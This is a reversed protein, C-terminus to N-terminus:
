RESDEDACVFESQAPRLRSFDSKGYNKRESKAIV